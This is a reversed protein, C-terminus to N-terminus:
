AKSQTFDLLQPKINQRPCESVATGVGFISSNLSPEEFTSPQLYTMMSSVVPTSNYRYHGSNGPLLVISADLGDTYTNLLYCCDVKGSISTEVKDMSREAGVGCQWKCLVEVDPGMASRPILVVVYAFPPEIM